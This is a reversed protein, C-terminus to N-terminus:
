ELSLEERNAEDLETIREILLPLTLGRFDSFALMVNNRQQETTLQGAQAPTLLVKNWITSFRQGMPKQLGQFLEPEAQAAAYVASRYAANGPGMVLSLLVRGPKAANIKFEFQFGRGSPTWNESRFALNDDWSAPVFRLMTAGEAEVILGAVGRVENGIAEVLSGSRPAHKFIFDLAERHREYLKVALTQLDQDGVIHKRLMDIYHRVILGAENGAQDAADGLPELAAALDAYSFAIYAEDDPSAATPTLFVLLKRHGAYRQDLLKRYRDLQGKGAKSWIKNEILLVFNLAGIEVLLDINDSERHVIADDLDGLILEVSSIPRREAPIASLIGRLLNQLPKVGFGHPRSPSLLYSLFNSHKLEGTEGGVAEFLNFKSRSRQVTWFDPDDLLASLLDDTAM